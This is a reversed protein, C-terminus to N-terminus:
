RDFTKGHMFNIKLDIHIKHNPTVSM